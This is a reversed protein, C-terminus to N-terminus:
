AARLENEQRKLMFGPVIYGFFMAGCYLVTAMLAGDTFQMAIGAIWFLVGGLILPRFRMIQGTLFTAFGTLVTIMPGPDQHQKAAVVMTILMSIVFTAWLWGIVRDMPNHVPALKGQRAGYIASIVGGLMGAVGWSLGQSLPEPQDRFLYTFLMAGILLFGWLLFYFSLRSFSRKAQGIMAEIVKLSEQATMSTEMAIPKIPCIYVLKNYLCSDCKSKMWPFEVELLLLLQGQLLLPKPVPM